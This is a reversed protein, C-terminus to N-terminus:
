LAGGIAGATTVALFFITIRM